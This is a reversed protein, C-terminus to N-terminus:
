DADYGDNVAVGTLRAPEYLEGRGEECFITEGGVRDVVLAVSEVAFLIQRTNLQPPPQRDSKTAMMKRRRRRIQHCHTDNS